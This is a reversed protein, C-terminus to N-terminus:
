CPARTLFPTICIISSAGRRPRRSRPWSPTSTIPASSRRAGITLALTPQWSTTATSSASPIRPRRVHTHPVSYDNLDFRVYPTKGVEVSILEDAPFPNEAVPILSAKEEAFAERVTRTRDGPCRRDAAIGLMWDRAQLNLDEIDKYKRAAFFNERVYRIAREVRGKENGRAPAVPQPLFRYHAAMELLRPHFRITDGARELVASKLNDYLLKRPNGGYFNFAEVHGRVFSAMHASFFFRLFIQRSWSLVMVFCFLPRTAAGVQVKGFHAWDVQGEEGPLTRLRLYAEAPARPRFRMMMKRFHDQAGGYGRQCPAAGFQYRYTDTM